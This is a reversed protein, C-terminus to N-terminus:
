AAVDRDVRRWTRPPAASYRAHCCTLRPEPQHPPPPHHRNRAVCVSHVFVCDHACVCVSVLDSRAKKNGEKRETPAADPQRRDGRVRSDTVLLRIRPKKTGPRLVCASCVRVCVCVCWWMCLTWLCKFSRRRPPRAAASMYADRQSQLLCTASASDADADADVGVSTALSM